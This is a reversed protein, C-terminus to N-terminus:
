FTLIADVAFIGQEWSFAADSAPDNNLTPSWRYRWEPRILLNSTAQINVGATFDYVSVGNFKWWEFRAGARLQDNITYFLYQNVGITNYGNAVGFPDVNTHDMDSQFVYEWKDNITWDVVISHTYGDGIWGLNGATLIYTATLNDLLNVSAGGLFSSGGNFRDFGTDWGATWGGYLTVDDSATYTALAGTHTFAESFNFTFPISYFFNGTAPVVQYGLLTYFHGFKVSLDHYAVEAYLQPMAWGYVGHDWGNQFDWRGPNNGFAQTNQADTGYVADVRGGFGFGDSGDAVKEAYLYGQHLQFHHPYTNFIGDSHNHYGAQFWGGIDWGHNDGNGLLGCLSDSLDWPDGCGGGFLGCGSGCSGLGCGSGCSGDCASSGPACPDCSVQQIWNDQRNIVADATVATPEAALIGSCAWLSCFATMWKASPKLM